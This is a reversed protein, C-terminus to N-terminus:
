KCASDKDKDFLNKLSDLTEKLVAQDYCAKMTPINALWDPVGHDTLFGVLADHYESMTEMAPFNKELWGGIEGPGPKVPSGPKDRGVTWGEPDDGGGFWRLGFADTFNVPNNGCFAYMNLGGSIGIPDKSLWRGSVPDYWRARFYYLKTTLDYERGQWLYRNGVASKAL